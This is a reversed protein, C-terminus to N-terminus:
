GQTERIDLPCMEFIFYVIKRSSRAIVTDTFVASLGFM